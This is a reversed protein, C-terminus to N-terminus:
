YLRPLKDLTVAYECDYFERLAEESTFKDSGGFDNSWTMYWSWPIRSQSLAVISPLTGIEGVAMLKEQGCELVCHLEQYEKALDTHTHAPPYLDRTLVDVVNDGPYDKPVPSNWVWILNNLEYVTTFRNYLMCYLDRAVQGGKAGWWFWKGEAEHFPRFLIPVGKECFILLEKAMKDMDSVLAKHELTGEKLALAADFTTNETFFSKGMGYMPSFWHWTMTLLGGLKAWEMANELTGRNEDVEKQCETDWLECHINQSYSLLEFGCLAPKKGTVKEIYILERQERTQTHQGTVIGKGSLEALYEMVNRVGSQAALNCPVANKKPFEMKGRM